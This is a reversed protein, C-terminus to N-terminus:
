QINIKLTVKLFMAKDQMRFAIRRLLDWKPAALEQERRAVLQDLQRNGRHVRSRVRVLADLTRPVRVRFRVSDVVVTREAPITRWLYSDDAVIAPLEGIRVVAERTLAIAAAFKGRALYPHEKWIRYFARVWASSASDDIDMCGIAADTGPKDLAAVLARAADTSLEIDADLLLVRPGSTERLGANIAATKSAESRELVRVSPFESRVLAATRDTCGNCVVLVEFEGPAASELLARLTRGIVAEENHAPVIVDTFERPASASHRDSSAVAM